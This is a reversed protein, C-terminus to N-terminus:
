RDCDYVQNSQITQSLNLSDTRRSRSATNSNNNYSESNHNFSGKTKAHLSSGGMSSNINTNKSSFHSSNGEDTNQKRLELIEKDIKM